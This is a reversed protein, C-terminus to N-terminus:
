LQTLPMARSAVASELFLQCWGTLCVFKVMNSWPSWTQGLEGAVSLLLLLLLRRV